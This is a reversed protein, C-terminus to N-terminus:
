PVEVCYPVVGARFRCKIRVPKASEGIPSTGKGLISMNHEHLQSFICTGPNLAAFACQQEQAHICRFMPQATM